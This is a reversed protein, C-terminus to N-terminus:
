GVDRKCWKCGPQKAIINRLREMEKKNREVEKKWTATENQANIIALSNQGLM